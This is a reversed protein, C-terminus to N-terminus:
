ETWFENLTEPDPNVKTGAIIADGGELERVILTAFKELLIGPVSGFSGSFGALTLRNNPDVYLFGGGEIEKVDIHLANAVGSHGREGSVFISAIRDRVAVVFLHYPNGDVEPHKEVTDDYKLFGPSLKLAGIRCELTDALSVPDDYSDEADTCVLPPEKQV